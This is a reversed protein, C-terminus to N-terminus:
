EAVYRWPDTVSARRWITVFPIAAPQGAAAAHESPDLGDDRRPRREVRRARRLGRVWTVPSDTGAPGCRREQRDGRLRRHLDAHASTRGHEGCRRKRLKRVGPRYRDEASRGLVGTGGAELSKRHKERLAADRRAAGRAARAVGAAARRPPRAGEASRSRKYIAVRWGEPQKVWYSWTSSLCRAADDGRKLTMYGVTFGHQGDASLGARAPFWEIKGQTNDPNGALAESVKDKGRAFTGTPLPMVVDAAFMPALADVVNRTAAGAAFSRDAALLEDAVARPARTEQGIAVSGLAGVLAGLTLVRHMQNM